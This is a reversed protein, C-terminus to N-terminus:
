SVFDIADDSNGTVTVTLKNPLCVITEGVFRVKGTIECVHDPCDSYSMRATGNEITLINTGGNLTYVGDIYLPYEAVTEGDVTVSVKAGDVRTLNIVVTAVISILLFSAIVIIDIKHKIIFAKILAKNM